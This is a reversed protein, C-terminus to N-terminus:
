QWSPARERDGEVEVHWDESAKSLSARGQAGRPCRAYSRAGSSGGSYKVWTQKMLVFEFFGVEM